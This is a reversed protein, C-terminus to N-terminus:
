LGWWTTAKHFHLFSIVWQQRANKEPEATQFVNTIVDYESNRWSTLKIEQM